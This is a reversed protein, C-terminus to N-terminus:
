ADGLLRGLAARDLKGRPTAPLEDVRLWVKPRQHPALRERCWTDLEADPVPWRVVLAAAVRQGWEPDPLGCVGAAAVAPHERLAREVATPSVNEGGSIILESHRGTLQLRRGDWRGLDDTAFWTGPRGTAQGQDLYGDFASPAALEVAGDRLRLEIGPLPAGSDDADDGTPDQACVMGGFESLGYSHCPARGLATCRARLEPELPAGGTLICRLGAPWPQQGRDALLRGLTTPVLSVGTCGDLAANAAAADFRPLLQLHCGAVAARHILMAGGAHDLPLCTLWRDGGDLRLHQASAAAAALVARWSLAVAKPRDASGSTALVLAIADPALAGTADLPVDPDLGTPLACDSGLVPGCDSAMLLHARDADGLSRPLLLLARGAAPAAQIIAAVVPDPEASLGLLRGPPLDLGRLWAAAAGAGPLAGRWRIADGRHDNTPWALDIPGPDLAWGASM